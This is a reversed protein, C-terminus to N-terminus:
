KRFFTTVPFVCDSCRNLVQGAQGSVFVWFTLCNPYQNSSIKQKAQDPDLNNAFTKSLNHISSLKMILQNLSCTLIIKM